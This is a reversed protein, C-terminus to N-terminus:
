LMAKRLSELQALTTSSLNSSSAVQNYYNMAETYEKTGAANQEAICANAMGILSSKDTPDEALVQTFSEKAGTYDKLEMRIKGHLNNADKDLSVASLSNLWSDAQILKNTDQGAEQFYLNAVMTHLPVIKKFDYDNDKKASKELSDIENAMEEVQILEGLVNPYLSYMQVATYYMEMRQTNDNDKNRAGELVTSIADKLKTEDEVGDVACGAIVGYADIQDADTQNEKYLSTKKLESALKEAYNAYVPEELGVTEALIEMMTEPANKLYSVDVSYRMTDIAEKTQVERNPHSEGPLLMNFLTGYVEDDKPDAAIAQLYYDKAKDIDGSLQYSQAKAYSQAFVERSENELVFYSTISLVTLIFTLIAIGGVSFLQRKIKKLYDTNIRKLSKLDERLEGTDQYRDEPKMSVAKKVIHSLGGSIYSEFQRPDNEKGYQIVKGTLINFLTAGLAFTDTREDLLLSGTKGYQEPAAYGRTGMPTGLAREGHPVEKAIGFDLLHPSGHEDLMINRPNLDCYIIPNSRVTHLYELVDCLCLAWEIVDDEEQAGEVEVKKKLTYGNIYNMVLYVYDNDESCYHISTMNPHSLEDLIHMEAVYQELEETNGSKKVIKVAWNKTLKSQADRCLYIESSGGSALYEGIVFRGDLNRGSMNGIM